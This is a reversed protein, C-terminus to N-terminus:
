PPSSGRDIRQELQQLQYHVRYLQDRLADDNGAPQPSHTRTPAPNPVIPGSIYQPSRAPLMACSPLCLLLMALALNGM